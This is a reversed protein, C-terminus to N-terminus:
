RVYITGNIGEKNDGGDDDITDINIENSKPTIGEEKITEMDNYLEESDSDNSGDNSRDNTIYVDYLQESDSKKFSVEDDELEKMEKKKSTIQANVKTVDSNSVNSYM